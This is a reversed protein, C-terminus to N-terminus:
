NSSIKELVKSDLLFRDGDGVQIVNESLIPLESSIIPIRHNNPDDLWTHTVLFTTDPHNKALADLTSPKFHMNVDVSDPVGMEIVVVDCQPIRSSIAECPGSDGTHMITLGSRHTLLYGHPDVEEEHLVKFREFKWDPSNNVAGEDSEDWKISDLRDDMSGPYAIECLQSVRGKCGKPGHIALPYEDGRDSIWKRELILFPAGFFHDGHWHTFLISRINKPSLERRRLSALATPPCDILISDDILLLSHYRGQPLFANGTGLFELKVAM